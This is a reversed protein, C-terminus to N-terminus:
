GEDREALAERIEQITDDIIAFWEPGRGVLPALSPNGKKPSDSVAIQEWEKRGAKRGSAARFTRRTAGPILAAVRDLYHQYIAADLGLKKCRGSLWHTGSLSGRWNLQGLTFHGETDPDDYRLLPGADGWDITLDHQPAQELVWKVFTVVEASSSKTLREVFADKTITHRGVAPSESAAPVTVVVESPAVPTKVEVVARVVERTRALLRPQVFLERSTAHGEVSYLGMEVLGLTFQLQPTHSLFAAMREVGEHIGDGIILLLFRGLRLNRTVQDIFEREDIEEEEDDRALDILPDSSGAHDSPRRALVAARLDEYTWRSIREAYDIIQAVVTRRAEPNRWLKTEVLTLYGQPNMYLLDLAGSGVPLERALARPGDFIPEIEGAPILSPHAFLLAQLQGETLTREELPVRKLATAHGDRLLLPTVFQRDKM